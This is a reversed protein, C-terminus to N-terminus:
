EHSGVGFTSGLQEILSDFIGLSTVVMQKLQLSEVFDFFLYFCGKDDFAATM